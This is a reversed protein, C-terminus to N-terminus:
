PSEPDCLWPRLECLDPECLGPNTDCPDECLSPNSDCPNPPPPISPGDVMPTNLLLGTEVLATRDSRFGILAGNSTRGVLDDDGDKDFDMVFFRHGSGWNLADTYPTNLVVGRHVLANGEARLLSFTGAADRVLLDDDHDGDFDMVYYRNGENWGDTDKMGTNIYLAPTGVFHTRESRIATFHGYSDRAVLDDDGDGDYDMVFYRHGANWGDADKMGTNIYLAPTGVFHTRESRIATFHGYSDRAVLDDDGDGDYDMVFYRHGANWGTQDDGMGPNIFLAGTMVFQTRDSRLASFVGYSDRGVLDDDGDGDYDMVFYRHGANWGWYDTWSTNVLIGAFSLQGGESRFAMFQGHPGRVVLDDDGDGDYDMPFFRHGTVYPGLVETAKGPIWHITGFLFKSLQGGTSSDYEEDSVPLGLLGQWEGMAKYKAYIDGHVEFAGLLPHWSIAGGTFRVYEGGGFTMVNSVPYGLGGNRGRLYEYHIEISNILSIPGTADSSYIAGGRFSQYTYGNGVNSSSQEPYGLVGGEAGRQDWHQRISGNKVAVAGTLSHWYFAGNQYEVMAGGNAAAREDAIPLGADFTARSTGWARHIAKTYIARVGVQTHHILFGNEFEQFLTGSPSTISGEVAIPYGLRGNEAGDSSWRQFIAGRSVYANTAGLKYLLVGNQMHVLGGGKSDTVEDAIPYGESSGGEGHQQYTSLIRESYIAFTGTSPHHYLRGNQFRGVAGGRTDAQVDAIPWGLRSQVGGMSEYRSYIAGHVAFAPQEARSKWYIAGSTFHRLRGEGDPAEREDGQPSPLPSGLPGRADQLSEYKRQIIDTGQPTGSIITMPSGALHLLLQNAEDRVVIKVELRYGTQYAAPIEFEFGNNRGTSTPLNAVATGMLSGGAWFEVTASSAALLAMLGSSGGDPADATGELKKDKNTSSTNGPQLGSVSSAVWGRLTEAAIQYAFYKKPPGPEYGVSDTIGTLCGGACDPDPVRIICPGGSDGSYLMNAHPALLVRNPYSSSAETKLTTKRLIGQGAVGTGSDDNKGYGFCEVSEGIMDAVKKPYLSRRYGKSVLQGSANMIAFPADVTVLTADEFVGPSLELDRASSVKREQVSGDAPLMQDNLNGMYVKVTQAPWVQSVGCHRSTLFTTNTLMVGSCFRSASFAVVGSHSADPVASAGGLIPSRGEGLETGSRSGPGSQESNGCAATLVACLVAGAVGRHVSRKMIRMQIRRGLIFASRWIGSLRHGPRSSPVTPALAWSASFSSRATM